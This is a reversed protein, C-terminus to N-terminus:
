LTDGGSSIVCEKKLGLFNFELKIIGHNYPSIDLRTCNRILTKVDETLTLDLVNKASITILGCRQENDISGEVTIDPREAFSIKALEFMQKFRSIQEADSVYKVNRRSAIKGVKNLAELLDRRSQAEIQRQVDIIYKNGM